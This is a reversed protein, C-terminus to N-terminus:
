PEVEVSRNRFSATTALDAPISLVRYNADSLREALQDVVCTDADSERGYAFSVWREAYRRQADHSAALRQMLEAPGRVEAVQGDIEVEAQTDIPAGTDFEVTQRAGVADFAELVFGPPDLYAHCPVCVASADEATVRERVTDFMPEPSSSVPPVDPPHVGIPVGLLQRVIFSGRLQPANQERYAYSALFEIRTLFGPRETADLTVPVLDDGYGAPDLGYIAATSANVFAQPSTLLDAFTGKGDVVISEFFRDTEEVAASVSASTFAPFRAANKEIVGWRWGADSSVYYRHFVKLRERARPDELMREAQERLQAPTVLAGADAAASLTDDPMSDWLFYSLRTAVEFPSLVYNGNSDPTNEDIEARQLFSPSVLFTELIVEAVEDLTGHETIEEARAGIAEFRAVEGSTLPRRFARRGFQVITDHLCASTELGPACDMFRTKLAPDALVQAAVNEGAALYGAWGVDTIGADSDSALVTSPPGSYPPQLTSVGLLDYVTRDYEAGTLRLIQSTSQVLGGCDDPRGSTGGSGGTSEGGGAATDGAEGMTQSGASGGSTSMGASGGSGGVTAPTQPEVPTRVSRKSQGCAVLGTALVMGLIWRPRHWNTQTTSV